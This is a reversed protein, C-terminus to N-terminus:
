EIGGLLGSFLLRGVACARAGARVGKEEAVANVADKMTSMEQDRKVGSVQNKSWKRFASSSGM